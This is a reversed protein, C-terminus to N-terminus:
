YDPKQSNYRGREILIKQTATQMNKPSISFHPLMGRQTPYIAAHHDQGQQHRCRNPRAHVVPQHTGSPEFRFDVASGGLGEVPWGNRRYRRNRASRMGRLRWGRISRKSRGSASSGTGGHRFSAMRFVSATCPLNCICPRATWCSVSEFVLGQGSLSAM